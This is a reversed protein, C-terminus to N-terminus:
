SDEHSLLDKEFFRDAVDQINHEKPKAYRPLMQTTVLGAQKQIIAWDEEGQVMAGIFTHRLVSTKTKGCYKEIISQVTRVSIRQNRNSLFLAPDDDGRENLYETIAKRIVPGIAVKRTRGRKIKEIVVTGRKNKEDIKINWKNLAVLETASLGAGLLLYIVALDRKNVSAKEILEIVEEKSLTKPAIQKVDPLKILKIEETLYKRKIWKCYAKIAYFHKHITGPAMGQEELIGLYKQIHIADFSKLDKSYELLFKEFIALTSGYAVKTDFSKKELGYTLFEDIYNSYM